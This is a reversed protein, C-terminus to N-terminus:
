HFSLKLFFFLVHNTYTGNRARDGASWDHGLSTVKRSEPDLLATQCLAHASWTTSSANSLEKSTSTAITKPCEEFASKLDQQTITRALQAMRDLNVDNKNVINYSSLVCQLGDRFRHMDTGRSRGHCADYQPVKDAPIKKVMCSRWDDFQQRHNTTRDKASTAMAVFCAALLLVVATKM